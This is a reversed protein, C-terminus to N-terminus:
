LDRMKLRRMREWQALGERVAHEYGNDTAEHLRRRARRRRPANSVALLSCRTKASRSASPPLPLVKRLDAVGSFTASVQEFLLGTRGAPPCAITTKGCGSLGWLIMSSLRGVGVMRGLPADPALLHDQGVFEDLTRPRLREALPRTTDDFGEAASDFLSPGQPTTM